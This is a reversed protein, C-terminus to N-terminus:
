EGIAALSHVFYARGRWEGNGFSAPADPAPTHTLLHVNGATALDLLGCAASGNSTAALHINTLLMEMREEGERDAGRQAAHTESPRWLRTRPLPTSFRDGM